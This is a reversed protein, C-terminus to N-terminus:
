GTSSFLVPVLALMIGLRSIVTGSFGVAFCGYVYNRASFYGHWFLRLSASLSILMQPHMEGTGFFVELQSDSILMPPHMM